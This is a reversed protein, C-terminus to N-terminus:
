NKVIVLYKSASWFKEPDIVILNKIMDKDNSDKDLKYSDSPHTTVIKVNDDNIPITNMKTYDIQTFKSNDINQNLKPTRGIGLLGGEKDIIKSTQLEKSKGVVYFATHLATTKDSLNKSQTMNEENLIEVSTQLQAIQANMSELRTNLDALEQTKLALDENLMMVTKELQANNYGSNKLKKKLTEITKYNLDMLENIGAIADNIRERQTRKLEIQKDSNLAIIGQKATVSDLNREIDNFYTMYENMSTEREVLFLKLSDIEHSSKDLKARTQEMEEQNCSFLSFSAIALLLYTKM